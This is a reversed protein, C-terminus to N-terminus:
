QGNLQLYQNFFGDFFEADFYNPDFINPKHQSQDEEAQRAMRRISNASSHSFESVTKSVSHFEKEITEEYQFDPDNEAKKAREARYVHLGALFNCVVRSFIKAEEPPFQLMRHLRKEAFQEVDNTRTCRPISVDSLINLKKRIRENSPLIHDSSYVHHYDSNNKRMHIVDSMLWVFLCFDSPGAYNWNIGCKDDIDLQLEDLPTDSYYPNMLAEPKRSHQLGLAHGIEHALVYPFFRRDHTKVKELDVEWDEADDFHIDGNLPQSHGPFFTHALINDRNGRSGDFKHSDGHEGEDWLINIDADDKAHVEEFHLTVKPVSKVNSQTAWLQFAKHVTSRIVKEKLDKTYKSIFWKLHIENDGTFHRKPWKSQQSIAFRKQRNKARQTDGQGCRPRRTALLTEDDLEGTMPVGAVEQFVVLATRLEHLSPQPTGLYGYQYLYQVTRDFEASKPLPAALIVIPLLPLLRM